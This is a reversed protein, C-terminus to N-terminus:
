SLKVWSIIQMDICLSSQTETMLCSFTARATTATTSTPTTGSHLTATSLSWRTGYYSSAFGHLFWVRAYIGIRFLNHWINVWRSVLFSYTESVISDLWCTRKSGNAKRMWDNVKESQMLPKSNFCDCFRYDWNKWRTAYRKTRLLCCTICEATCAALTGHTQLIM